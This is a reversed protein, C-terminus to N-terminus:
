FPTVEPIGSGGLVPEIWVFISAVAAFLLQIGLFSFIAVSFGSRISPADEGNSNSTDTDGFMDNTADAVTDHSQPYLWGYVHKYKRKSLAKCFLQQRDGGLSARCWDYFDFDM